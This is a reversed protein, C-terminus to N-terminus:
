PFGIFVEITRVETTDPAGTLRAQWAEAELTQTIQAGGPILAPDSAIVADAAIAAVQEPAAGAISVGCWARLPPGLLGSLPRDPIDNVLLVSEADGLNDCLGSFQAEVGPRDAVAILPASIFHVPLSSVVALAVILNRSRSGPAQKAHFHALLGFAFLILGPLVVPTFRRIAWIQDANVSPKVLYTLAPVLFTLTVLRIAASGKVVSRRLAGIFGAFGLLTLPVGIYWTLWWVTLEAYNRNPDVTLGERVQIVELGYPGQSSFVRSPFLSPRVLWLFALGLGASVALMTAVQKRNRQVLEALQRLEKTEGAPVLVRLMVVAAVLPVISARLLGFYPVSFVTLDIFGLVAPIAFGTLMRRAVWSEQEESFWVTFFVLAAVGIGAMWADVRVLAAGGLLLGSGFALQPQAQLAVHGAWLGGTILVLTPIETFTGRSYHIYPLTAAMLTAAALAWWQGMFRRGLAFLSLIGVGSLVGNFSFMAGRGFLEGVFGLASSTSHLFQQWFTGDDRLVFGPSAFSLDQGTFPEAIAEPFLNAGDVLFAATNAYTGGDRGAVVLNSRLLVNSVVAALVVLALTVAAAKSLRPIALNTPLQRYLAVGIVATLPGVVIAHHLGVMAALLAATLLGLFAALSASLLPTLRSEGEGTATPSTLHRAAEVSKTQQQM